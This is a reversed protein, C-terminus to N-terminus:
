PMVLSFAVGPTPAILDCLLSDLSGFLPLHTLILNRSVSSTLLILRFFTYSNLAGPESVGLMGNFFESLTLPLPLLLRLLVALLLLHHHPLLPLLSLIPLLPILSKFALTPCSHQM